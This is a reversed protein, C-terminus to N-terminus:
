LCKHNEDLKGRGEGVDGKYYHELAHLNNSNTKKKM